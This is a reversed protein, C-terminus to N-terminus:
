ELSLAKKNTFFNFYNKLIFSIYYYTNKKAIENHNLVKVSYFIQKNVYLKLVGIQTYKKLPADYYSNFSIEYDIKDKDSNKIAINSFNFDNEDLYLDLMQHKGKNIFFSNKHSIKWSNFKNIAIDKLNILTFNSFAYNLLKITDKTRNNKTDCGLVICIFDLNNRKCSTVLCRNAGNTFGTKVGYIGEFNGLLENTNSINKQQNNILVTYNKTKVIKSFIDNKLAYDTLIALDLATTYHNENDLGHPTVFNTNILGLEHAKNNMMFAFKEVSGGTYEALAVAADNGSKLMLGYLLHEVSIKDKKSLGLRSGNTTSAKLSVEVIDNLNSNEIVVIATMIKTTSAMKCIESSKKTYIARKSHRDFVIAHKANISPENSAVSSVEQTINSILFDDEILEDDAFVFNSQFIALLTFTILNFFIRKM